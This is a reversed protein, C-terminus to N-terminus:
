DQALDLGGQRELLEGEAPRVLSARVGRRRGVGGRGAGEDDVEKGIERTM